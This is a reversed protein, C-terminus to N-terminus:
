RADNWLWWALSFGPAQLGTWTEQTLPPPGGGQGEQTPFPADLVRHPVPM